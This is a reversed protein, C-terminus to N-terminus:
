WGQSDRLGNHEVSGYCGVPEWGPGKPPPDDDYLAQEYVEWEAHAVPTGRWADWVGLLNFDGEMTYASVKTGGVKLDIPPLGEEVWDIEGFVSQLDYMADPDLAMEGGTVVSQDPAYWGPGMPWARYFAYIESGRAKM